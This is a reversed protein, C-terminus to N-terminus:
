FLPIIHLNNPFQRSQVSILLYVSLRISLSLSLTHTLIAFLNVWICRLRTRTCEHTRHSNEDAVRKTFSCNASWGNGKKERVYSKWM